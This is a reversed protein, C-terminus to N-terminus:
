VSTSAHYIFEDEHGGNNMHRNFAIERRRNELQPDIKNNPKQKHAEKRNQAEARTNIKEKHWRKFISEMFRISPNNGSEGAELMIEQIFEDTYGQNKINRIFESMLPSMMIKGFVKLHVEELTEGTTTSILEKIDNKDNKDNKNIGLSQKEATVKSNGRAESSQYIDWQIVTILTYQRNGTGSTISIMTQKILWKLITDITKPNPEKWVRGEYWGIGKAIGRVSTLHQGPDITFKTGDRMPIEAQKHNVKYKLYQWVRHYLPPMLWIDSELEKRYDKIFGSM